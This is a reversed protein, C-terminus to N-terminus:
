DAPEVLTRDRRDDPLSVPLTLLYGAHMTANGEDGTVIHASLRLNKMGDRRANPKECYFMLGISEIERETLIMKRHFAALFQAVLARHRPDAMNPHVANTHAHSAYTVGTYVPRKKDGPAAAAAALMERLGALLRRDASGGAGDALGVLQSTSLELLGFLDAYTPLGGQTKMREVLGTVWRDPVEYLRQNYWDRKKLVLTKGRPWWLYGQPQCFADLSGLPTNPDIREDGQAAVIIPKSRYYDSVVALGTKEALQKLRDPWEKATAEKVQAPDPLPSRAAIKDGTYPNGHPPFVFKTAANFDTIPMTFGTPAQMFVQYLGTSWHGMIGFGIDATDMKERPIETIQFGNNKAPSLKEGFFLPELKAKLDSPISSVPFRIQWREILTRKQQPDLLAYLRTATRVDAHSLSRIPDTELRRELESPTERLAKVQEELQALLRRDGEQGLREEYQRTKLDRILVYQLKGDNGQEPDWLDNFLAAIDALVDRLPRAPGLLIVKDDATYRNATLSVGTKQSILPLLEGLSIGEASIKVRQDLRTDSKWADEGPAASASILLTAPIMVGLAVVGTVWKALRSPSAPTTDGNTLLWHVRKGLSSRFAVIGTGVVLDRRTPSLREALRVLFDAYARPSPVYPLAALDCAEEGAQEARRRLAHLLPQPWALACVLRVLFAWLNDRWALHAIEHALIARLADNDFEVEFAVPVLIAPRRVGTLFVGCVAPSTLLDPRRVGQAASLEALMRCTETDRVPTARRRLRAIGAYCTLLWALQAVVGVLWIAVVVIYIWGSTSTRQPVTSALFDMFPHISASAPAAQAVSPPGPIVAVSANSGASVSEGATAPSTEPDSLSEINAGVHSARNSTVEGESVVEQASPLSLLSWTPGSWKATLPAALTCVGVGAFAARYILSQVAPGRRRLAWGALLALAILLTTQMLVSAGVKVVFESAPIIATM